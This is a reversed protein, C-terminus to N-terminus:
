TQVILTGATSAYVDFNYGSSVICQFTTGNLKSTLTPILLGYPSPMYEAPVHLSEYLAGNIIWAPFSPGSFPCPIFVDTERERRYITTPGHDFRYRTEQDEKSCTSVAHNYDDMICYDDAAVLHKPNIITWDIFPTNNTYM